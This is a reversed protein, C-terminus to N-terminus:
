HFMCKMKYASETGQPHGTQNTTNVAKEGKAFQSPIVRSTGCKYKIASEPCLYELMSMAVSFELAGMNRLSGVTSMAGCVPNHNAADPTLELPDPIPTIERVPLALSPCLVITIFTRVRTENNPLFISSTRDLTEISLPIPTFSLVLGV